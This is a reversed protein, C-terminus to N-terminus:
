RPEGEAERAKVLADFRALAEKRTAGGLKRVARHLLVRVTSVSLGLEYAIVKDNHDLHAQTVVQHERVSLDTRPPRTPPDNEVALVFRRGDTDFDDLLAWRAAVLPRWRRTARHVDARGAKTRAEDFAVTARRLEERAGGVDEPDEAHLLEGGPALM